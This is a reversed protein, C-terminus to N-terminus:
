TQAPRILKWAICARSGDVPTQHLLAAVPSRELSVTMEDFGQPYEALGTYLDFDADALEDEVLSAAADPDFESEALLDNPLAYGPVASTASAQCHVSRYSGGSDDYESTVEFSLTVADLWAHKLFLRALIAGALSNDLAEHIARAKRYQQDAEIGADNLRLEGGAHVLYTPQETTTETSM